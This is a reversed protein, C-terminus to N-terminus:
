KGTSGFRGNSRTSEEVFKEVYEMNQVPEGTFSVIQFLRTSEEIVFEEDSHNDVFALLSGNFGKDIIGIINSQRLPTKIISSRPCFIYPVRKKSDYMACSVELDLKNSLSKPPIVFKKPCYLDFGSDDNHNKKTKYYDHKCIIKLDM